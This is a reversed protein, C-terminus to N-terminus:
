AVVLQGILLAAMIWLAGRLWRRYTAADIRERVRMGTYLAAVAPLALAAVALWMGPPVAGSAAWTAVQTGKGFTFCLNLTQVVQAPSLGLLMFYILLVPGAVNAMAEFAGAVLGFGIGFPVRHRDVLGSRGRNLRDLNLYFVIVGALLLVFPEPPAVLLVLTGLWAGFAVALPLFWYRRFLQGLEGGRLVSLVTLVLTLPALLAIASKIDLVLAVLPTGVLPFGFGLAGHAFGSLLVVAAVFALAWPALESM